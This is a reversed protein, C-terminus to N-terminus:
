KEIWTEVKRIDEATEISIVDIDRCTKKVFGSLAKGPGIEIIRDVGKSRMYRISDEFYVSSCVQKALLEQISESGKERGTCNFIVPIKMEGFSIERFKEALAQSAPEMYSTHFPGSVSLRMSRKAGAGKALRELESVGEESGSVVIQGPCNYNAIEVKATENAKKCLKTMVDKELGLVASMVTDIGKSAEAMANARFQILEVAIEPSFVGAATLATYEGLSLGCVYDPKIGMDELVRYLGAGFALLVPQANVTDKMKEETGEFATKRYKEPLLDFIERFSLYAEYLDKGMGAKQSGQGAFIIATKM